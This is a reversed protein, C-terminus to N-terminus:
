ERRTSGGGYLPGAFDLDAHFTHEEAPFSRSKVESVYESIGKRIADGINAYAKVFKKPVNPSAYQLIDHFVLVQGDCHPGAGIGITPISLEKTIQASLEDTMLELVIAFAGAQELAKADDILKKAQANNKGHIKYGGIQYLSQPTLGIHGMVPVGAQVTAQVTHAIEGGGEMKVAKCLGERMLRGVNHLSADISGHYTMFPMDAVVFPASVARTVMKTHYIMEDLTVPITSQQGQVVNGLSDGVLIVDVGAEEALKASTYDYATIVSIPVNDSKMKKLRSTSM